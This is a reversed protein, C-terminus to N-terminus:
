APRPRDEGLHRTGAILFLKSFKQFGYPSLSTQFIVEIAKIIAVPKWRGREREGEREREREVRVRDKKLKDAKDPRSRMINREKRIDDLRDRRHTLM